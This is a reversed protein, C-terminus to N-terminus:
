GMSPGRATVLRYGTTREFAPGLESYAGFYGASIMVHVDGGAAAAGAFLLAGAAITLVSRFFLGPKVSRRAHSRASRRRGAMRLRAPGHMRERQDASDLPTAFLSFCTPAASGRWCPM